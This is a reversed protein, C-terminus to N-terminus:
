TGVIEMARTILEQYPGFAVGVGRLYLPVPRVREHDYLEGRRRNELTAIPRHGVYDNLQKLSGDVIRRTESWPGRQNLVAEFVRVLFFPPYFEADTLHFLLDAHHRRYAPVVHDFVLAIAAEVQGSESFAAKGAKKLSALAADLAQRLTRWPTVKDAAAFHAYADNFQRQFRPDPRGESFNLYGLIPELDLMFAGPCFLPIETIKYCVRSQVMSIGPARLAQSGRRMEGQRQMPFRYIEMKCRARPRENEELHGEM